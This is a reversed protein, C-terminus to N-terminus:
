CSDFCGHLEMEGHREVLWGVKSIAESDQLRRQAIALDARKNESVAFVFFVGHSDPACAWGSLAVIEPLRDWIDEFDVTAGLQKEYTSADVRLDVIVGYQCYFVGSRAGTYQRVAERNAPFCWDHFQLNYDLVQSLSGDECHPPPVGWIGPMGSVANLLTEFVATSPRFIVHPLGAFAPDSSGFLAQIRVQNM